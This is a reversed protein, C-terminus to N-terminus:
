GHKQREQLALAAVTACLAVIWGIFVIVGMNGMRGEGERMSRGVLVFSSTTGSVYRMVAAIRVQPSLEWSFRDEGADRARQFYEGPPTAPNGDLLGSSDILTQNEDYISIFTALSRAVDHKQPPVYLAPDAGAELRLAVDLAIQVQPDDLTQRYYQLLVVYMTASVISILVLFPLARFLFAM